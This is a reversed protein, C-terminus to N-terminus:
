CTSRRLNYEEKFGLNEKKCLQKLEKFSTRDIEDNYLDWYYM